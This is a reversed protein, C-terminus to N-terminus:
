MDVVKSTVVLGADIHIDGRNVDKKGKIYPDVRLRIIVM